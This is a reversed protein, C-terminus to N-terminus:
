HHRHNHSEGHHRHHHHRQTHDGGSHGGHEQRAERNHSEGHHRHHHHHTHDGSNGRYELRARNQPEGHHRHKEQNVGSSSGRHDQWVVVQTERSRSEGHHRSHRERTSQVGINGRTETTVVRTSEGHFFNIRMTNSTTIEVGGYAQAMRAVEQGLVQLDFTQNAPVHRSVSSHTARNTPVLDRSLVVVSKKLERQLASKIVESNEASSVTVNGTERDLQVMEVGIIRLASRVKRACGDCNHFGLIGFTNTM